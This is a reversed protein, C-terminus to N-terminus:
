NGVNQNITMGGGGPKLVNMLGLLGNVVMERQRQDLNLKGLQEKVKVEYEKILTSYRQVKVADQKTISDYRKTNADQQNIDIQKWAQLITQELNAKQQENLGIKSDNVAIRSYSELVQVTANEVLANYRDRDLDFDQKLKETERQVNQLEAVISDYSTMEKISAIGTEVEKLLTDQKKNLAEAENQSIQSDMLEMQKGMMLAGVDMPNFGGANGSSASGGSQSGTTTGSGGGLGYMLGPNLGAKKMMELQAPYNTKNWMDYQLDSGQQNLNRQNQYQIGMLKKQNKYQKKQGFLGGGTSLVQAGLGLWDSM